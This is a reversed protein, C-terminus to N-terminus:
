WVHCTSVIEVVCGGDSGATDAPIEILPQGDESCRRRNDFDLADDFDTKIHWSYAM